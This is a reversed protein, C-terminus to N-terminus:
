DFDDDSYSESAVDFEVTRYYKDTIYKNSHPQILIEFESIAVEDGQYPIYCVKHSAQVKGPIIVGQHSARGVYLVESNYGESYGAEVAEVPIRNYKSKVWTLNYGCLVDFESKEHSQGGWSIFGLGLSPVFKGPTLSGRHKSRIIYLFENEYGGIFSDDPLQIDASVWHAKGSNFEVSLPKEISPPLLLKWQVSTGFGSFTVYKINDLVIHSKTAIAVPNGVVGLKLADNSWLLWFQKYENASLVNPIYAINHNDGDDEEDSAKIWTRGERAIYVWYNCHYKLKKSIGIAAGGRSKIHLILGSGSLKYSVNQHSPLTTFEVIEGMTEKFLCNRIVIYGISHICYKSIDKNIYICTQNPSKLNVKCEKICPYGRPKLSMDVLIEYEYKEVEEGKYPLYCTKYLMHVKGVVLNGDIMARGIYLPENRVESTGAVFANEPIDNNQCKVWKANYGCLIQFNRKEHAQGGWAVFARGLSPVYKGPCLSGAYMARAVYLPNGEFGGIFADLPLQNNEIGVWHLKGDVIDPNSNVLSKFMRPSEEVRWDIKYTTKFKIYGIFSEAAKGGTINRPYVFFPKENMVGMSIEQDHWTIWLHLPENTDIVHSPLPLSTTVKELTTIYATRTVYNLLIEYLDEHPCNKSILYIAPNEEHHTLNVNPHLQFKIGGSDSKYLKYPIQVSFCVDSKM